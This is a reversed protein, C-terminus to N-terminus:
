RLHSRKWSFVGLFPVLSLLFSAHNVDCLILNLIIISHILRSINSRLDSNLSLIFVFLFFQWGEYLMSQCLYIFLVSSLIPPDGFNLFFIYSCLFYWLYGGLSCTGASSSAVCSEILIISIWLVFAYKGFHVVGADSLNLFNLFFFSFIKSSPVPSIHLLKWSSLLALHRSFLVFRPSTCDVDLAKAVSHVSPPVAISWNVLLCIHILVIGSNRIDFCFYIARWCGFLEWPGWCLCWLTLIV